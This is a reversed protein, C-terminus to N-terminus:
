WHRMEKAKFNYLPKLHDLVTVTEDIYTEINKKYASPAEDRTGPEVSTSYIGEMSQRFEEMSISKFAANRSMVRGAGHPASQNWDANGKGQCLLSGDRMNLPILLM